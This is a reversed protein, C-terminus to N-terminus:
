TVVVKAAGIKQGAHNAIAAIEQAIVDFHPRMAEFKAHAFDTAAEAIPSVVEAIEDKFVIGTIVATAVITVGAAVKLKFRYAAIEEKSPQTATENSLANVSFCAISLLACFRNM